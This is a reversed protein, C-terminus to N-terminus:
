YISVLVILKSTQLHDETDQAHMRKNLGGRDGCYQSNHGLLLVWVGGNGAGTCSNGTQFQSNLKPSMLTKDVLALTAGLFRKLSKFSHLMIRFCM